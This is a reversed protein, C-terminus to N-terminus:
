AGSNKDAEELIQEVAKKLPLIDEQVTNWVVRLNVGFYHHILKDRMRAISRWPIEPHTERLSIPVQKVAEGVIELARITAYVRMDNALFEDFNIGAPFTEIKIANEVIDRLYDTPDLNDSM